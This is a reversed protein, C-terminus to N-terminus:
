DHTWEDDNETRGDTRRGKDTGKDDLQNVTRREPSPPPIMKLGGGRVWRRIVVQPLWAGLALDLDGM